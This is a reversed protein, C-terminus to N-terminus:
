ITSCTCNSFPTIFVLKIFKCIFYFIGHIVINGNSTYSTNLSIKTDSISIGNSFQHKTKILTDGIDATTLGLEPNLNLLETNFGVIDGHNYIDPIVKNNNIGGGGSKVIYESM